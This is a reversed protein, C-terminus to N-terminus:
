KEDSEKKRKQEKDIEILLEFVELLYRGAEQLESAELPEDYLEQIAQEISDRM